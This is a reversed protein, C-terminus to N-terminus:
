MADLVAVVVVHVTSVATVVDYANAVGERFDQPQHPARRQHVLGQGSQGEVPAPTVLDYVMQAVSQLFCSYLLALIFYIPSFSLTFKCHLLEHGQMLDAKRSRCTCTCHVHMYCQLSMTSTCTYSMTYVHIYKACLSKFNVLIILDDNM